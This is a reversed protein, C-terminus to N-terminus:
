ISEIRTIEIEDESLEFKSIFDEVLTERIVIVLKKNGKLILELIESVVPELGKNNFELPGYEDVVITESGDQCSLKLRERAWSFSEFYFLFRGLQFTDKGKIQSTIVKSENTKIDEFFRDEGIKPQIIGGINDISSILNKLYTTKGSGIKGTIIQIKKM